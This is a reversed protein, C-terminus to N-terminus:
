TMIFTNDYFATVLALREMQGTDLEVGVYFPALLTKVYRSVDGMELHVNMSIQPLFQFYNNHM